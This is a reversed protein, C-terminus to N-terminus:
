GLLWALGVQGNTLVRVLESPDSFSVLVSPPLLLLWRPVEQLHQTLIPRPVQGESRPPRLGLICGCCYTASTAFGSASTM